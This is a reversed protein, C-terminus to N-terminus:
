IQAQEKGFVIGGDASFHDIVINPNFNFTLERERYICREKEAYLERERYVDGRGVVFTDKKQSSLTERESSYWLKKKLADIMRLELNISSWEM